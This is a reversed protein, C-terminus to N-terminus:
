DNYKEFAAHGVDFLAPDTTAFFLGRQTEEGERMKCDEICHYGNYRRFSDALLKAGEAAPYGAATANTDHAMVCLPRRPLLYELERSVSALDHNADVLIFDFPEPSALVQWSPNCTLVDRGACNRIVNELSATVSVDCFTAEMPSGSNIAEVFATASAGNYSGLELAHKFPWSKLIQHVIFVHRKDMAVRPNAYCGSYAPINFDYPAIM